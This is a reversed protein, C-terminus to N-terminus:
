AMAYLNIRLLTEAAFGAQQLAHGTLTLEPQDGRQFAYHISM